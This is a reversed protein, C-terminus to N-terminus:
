LMMDIDIDFATVRRFAQLPCWWLETGILVTYGDVDHSLVLMCVQTHPSWVRYDNIDFETFDAVRSAPPWSLFVGCNTPWFVVDGTNIVVNNM